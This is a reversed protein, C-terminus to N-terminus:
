EGQTIWEATQRSKSYPFIFALGIVDEGKNDPFLAKDTGQGSKKDVVYILLVGKKPDSQNEIDSSISFREEVAKIDASETLVRIATGRTSRRKSIYRTIKRTSVGSMWSFPEGQKKGPPLVVTWDILEHVENQSEIYKSLIDGNVERARDGFHYDKILSIILKSKVKEWSYSGRLPNDKNYNDLSSLWARVIKQNEKLKEVENLPFVITQSTRNSLSIQVKKGAGLKMNSTVQMTPHVRILPAIQTPTLPKESNSYKKIDERLEMEVRALDTFDDAIENNVFIRTLDHYEERYGFWRGMQLLTDYKNGSRPEPRLYFSISLGELTLGRSLKNGGIVIYRRKDKEYELTDSFESNLVKVEISNLIEKAFKWIDDFSFKQMGESDSIKCFDKEWIDKAKKIYIKAKSPHEVVKKLFVIEREVWNKYQAHINKRHSPHILMSFHNDSHGRSIRACCSLIFTMITKQIIKPPDNQNETIEEIEMMEETPVIRIVDLEPEIPQDDSLESPLMGLGFLKKPGFYKDPEDLAFIFNKPYLDDETDMDILVNAFPTATFGIYAHKPFIQLIDRIMANTKSPDQDEDDQSYNINISADDCEDDIIIASFTKLLGINSKLHQIFKRMVSVNKKIVAIKPTEPNLDLTTTGPNFDGKIEGRTMRNWKRKEEPISEHTVCQLIEIESEGTIEQDIRNQTQLRLDNYRGALIIFFRYGHDVARAIFASMNATKGSQIHGVVLGKYQFNENERPDPCQELLKKSANSLNEVICRSWTRKNYLFNEFGSYYKDNESKYKCLKEGQDNNTISSMEKIEVKLPQFYDMIQNRLQIPVQARQIANALEMKEEYVLFEIISRYHTFQKM